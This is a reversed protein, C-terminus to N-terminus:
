ASSARSDIGALALIMGLLEKGPGQQLLERGTTTSDMILSLARLLLAVSVGSAVRRGLGACSHTLDVSLLPPLGIWKMASTSQLTGSTSHDVAHPQFKALFDACTAKTM